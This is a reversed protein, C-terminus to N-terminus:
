CGFPNDPTIDVAGPVRVPTPLPIVISSAVGLTHAPLTVQRITSTTTDDNGPGCVALALSVVLNVRGGPPVSLRQEPQSAGRAYGVTAVVGGPGTLSEAAGLTVPLVGNNRITVALAATASPDDPALCPVRLVGAAPDSTIRTDSISSEGTGRVDPRAIALGLGVVLVVVAVILLATVGRGRAWGGIRAIM